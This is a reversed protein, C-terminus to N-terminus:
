RSCAVPNAACPTTDLVADETYTWYPNVREIVVDETYVWYPNVPAPLAVAAPNGNIVVDEQYTWYHNVPAVSAAAPAPFTQARDAGIGVVFALALVATAVLAALPRLGVRLPPTSQRVLISGTTAQPMVDPSIQKAM